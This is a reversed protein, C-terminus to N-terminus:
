WCSTFGLRTICFNQMLLSSTRVGPAAAWHGGGGALRGHWPKLARHRGRKPNNLRTTLRTTKLRTTEKVSAGRGGGRGGGEHARLDRHHELAIHLVLHEAREPLEEYHLFGGGMAFDVDEFREGTQREHAQVVRQLVAQAEDEVEEREVVFGVIEGLILGARRGEAGAGGQRESRSVGEWAKAGVRGCWGVRWAAHRM